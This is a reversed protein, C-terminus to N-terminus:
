ANTVESEDLVHSGIVRRAERVYLSIPFNGNDLFEDDALGLNKHEQDNQMFYLYGLARDRYLQEIERRRADSATPYDYNIGPWDVGFPHQNVEFKGNSLRGSTDNWTEEWKPSYRYTEPDYFRPQPILPAGTDGYDKWIMLYAYSQVRCDGVGTSGPLIQQADDDFYIFGAHPEQPSRPERGVLVKCGCLTAFDATDTADITIPACLRGTQGTLLDRTIAGEVRSGDRIPQIARCKLFSSINPHEYVMEKILANAVRPEYRLGDGTGYFEVVSRRFDEFFGNSHAIDRLDTSGLGNPAMGGLRNTEEVLAVRLGLRAATVAAAVGSATGGIVLLDYDANPPVECSTKEVVSPGDPALSFTYKTNPALSTFVRCAFPNKSEPAITGAPSGNVLLQAERGEHRWYLAISNPGQAIAQLNGDRTTSLTNAFVTCSCLLICIVHIYTM